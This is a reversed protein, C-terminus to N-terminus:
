VRRERTGWVTEDGKGRWAAAGARVKLGGSTVNICVSLGSGVWGRRGKCRWDIAQANRWAGLKLGGGLCVCVVEGAGLLGQDWFGGM